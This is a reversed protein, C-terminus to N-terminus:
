CGQLCEFREIICHPGIVTSVASQNVKSQVIIKNETM